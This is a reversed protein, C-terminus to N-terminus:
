RADTRCANTAANRYQSPLPWATVLTEGDFIFLHQSYVRMNSANCGHNLFVWDLYKRMRGSFDSHQAGDTLARAAM